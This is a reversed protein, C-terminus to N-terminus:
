RMLAMGISSKAQATFDPDYTNITHGTLYSNRSCKMIFFVIM